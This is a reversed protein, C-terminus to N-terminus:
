CACVCVCLCVRVRVVGGSCSYLSILAKDHGGRAVNYELEHEILWLSLERATTVAYLQRGLVATVSLIGSPGSGTGSGSAASAHANVGRRSAAAGGPPAVLQKTVMLRGTRVSFISLVGSTDGALVQTPCTPPLPLHPSPASPVVPM